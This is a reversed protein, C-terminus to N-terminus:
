SLRQTGSTLVLCYYVLVSFLLVFSKGDDYLDVHKKKREGNERFHEM